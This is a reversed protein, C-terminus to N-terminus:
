RGVTSDDSDSESEVPMNTMWQKFQEYYPRVQGDYWNDISNPWQLNDLEDAIRCAFDYGFVFTPGQEFKEYTSVDIYEFATQFFVDKAPHLRFSQTSATDAIWAVFSKETSTLATTSDALSRIKDSIYDDM